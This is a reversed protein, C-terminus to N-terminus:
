AGPLIQTGTVLSLFCGPIVVDHCSFRKTASRSKLAVGVVCDFLAAFLRAAIREILYGIKFVRGQLDCRALIFTSPVIDACVDTSWHELTFAVVRILGYRSMLDAILHTREFETERYTSRLLGFHCAPFGKIRALPCKQQRGGRDERLRVGSLLRASTELGKV